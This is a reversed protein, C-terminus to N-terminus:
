NAANELIVKNRRINNQNKCRSCTAMYENLGKYDWQHGCKRCKILVM